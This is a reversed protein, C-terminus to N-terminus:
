AAPNRIPWLSINTWARPNPSGQQLQSNSIQFVVESYLDTLTATTTFQPSRQEKKSEKGMTTMLDLEWIASNTQCKSQLSASPLNASTHLPFFCLLSIYYIITVLPLLFEEPWQWNVMKTSPLYLLFNFTKFWSSGNM